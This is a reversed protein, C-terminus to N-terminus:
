IKGLVVSHTKLFLNDNQQIFNSILMYTINLKNWISMSSLNSLSFNAPSYEWFITKTLIWAYWAILNRIEEAWCYSVSTNM